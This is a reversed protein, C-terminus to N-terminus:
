ETDKLEEMIERKLDDKMNDVAYEIVERSQSDLVGMCDDIRTIVDDVKQELRLFEQRLETVTIEKASM